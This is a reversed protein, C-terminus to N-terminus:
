KGRRYRTSQLLSVQVFRNLHRLAIVLAMQGFNNLGAQHLKTRVLGARVNWPSITSAEFRARSRVSAMTWASNFLPNPGAQSGNTRGGREDPQEAGHDTNQVGEVADRGGLHL